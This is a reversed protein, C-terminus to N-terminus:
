SRSTPSLRMPVRPHPRLTLGAYPTVRVGPLLDLRYRQAVQAVIAEMESTALAGGICRRPGGGFPFYAFAPRGAARTPIFRDPDFREPEEWVAPHRHTLYPSLLVLSGPHIPYGGLTGDVLPTRATIWTPPYLRLVESIVRCMFDLRSLDGSGLVRGGLVTRCDHEIRERAEPHESLLVWTWALASATTSHGATLFARCEERLEADSLPECGDTGPADLLAALLTGPRSGERRAEAVRRAVLVTLARLSRQYRAAAPTPVELWGFPSWLRRDVHAVAVDLAEGLARAEAPPVEGFVARIVIAQTLRRMESTVELPEGRQASLRWRELMEDTASTTATLFHAHQDPRFAPLVQRRRVRWRDGDVVTLSDGFLARVRSATPGKAFDRAHDQLVHKVHHPHRVLCVHHMGLRMSVLDGYRHVCASFFGLPDRRAMPFVGVLPYGAPGPLGAALSRGGAEPPM